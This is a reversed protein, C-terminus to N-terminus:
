TQRWGTPRIRSGRVWTHQGRGRAWAFGWPGGPPVCGRRQRRCALRARWLTALSSSAATSRGPRDCHNALAQRTPLARRETGEQRLHSPTLCQPTLSLPTPSPLAGTRRDSWTRVNMMIELTLHGSVLRPDPSKLLAAHVTLDLAGHRQVYRYLRYTPVCVRSELTSVSWM